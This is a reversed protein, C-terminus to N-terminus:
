LLCLRIFVPAMKSPKRWRRHGPCRYHQGLQRAEARHQGLGAAPLRANRALRSDQAPMPRWHVRPRAYFRRARRRVHWPGHRRQLLLLPLMANKKAAQADQVHARVCAVHFHSVMPFHNFFM